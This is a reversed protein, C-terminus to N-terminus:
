LKIHLKRVERVVKRCLEDTLEAFKEEKAFLSQRNAWAYEVVAHFVEHAITDFTIRSKVFHLEGFEGLKPDHWTPNWCAWRGMKWRAFTVPHVEWLTVTIWQKKQRFYVRFEM